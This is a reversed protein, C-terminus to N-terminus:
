AYLVPRLAEISRAQLPPLKALKALDPLPRSTAPSNALEREIAAAASLLFADGNRPGVIQIGFPLGNADTGCPICITPHGTLTVGYALALWHFYTRVKAGDIEAPYLTTWAFPPVTIGPTVLLDFEEFFTQFRRYIATQATHARGFDELTYRMGEEVNAIINPGLMSRRSADRYIPLFKSLFGAARLVEFAMDADTMDPTATPAEKFWGQMRAHRDAFLKRYADCTPAFGMDPTFGVRLTALDVEDLPHLRDIVRPALPDRADDGAMATLMLAADEVNRAMPGLVSLVNWGHGRREDPVLGATPRYGVIGCFAAPNRLSGGTDSGTAIPVMGCALAAASGGSSGAATLEVDFPNGTAGYVKNVSNAGAGWEPVNTKGVIVAGAARIAAISRQDEQPVHHEFLPSGWTTRLGKTEELDKIGVPLGALAGLPEGAKVARDTAAAAARAAPIDMAVMANIAPDILAIRALCAELLETASIQKAGILRRLALATMDCISTDTM